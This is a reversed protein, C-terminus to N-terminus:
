YNFKERLAKKESQIKKERLRKEKASKPIKTPIREAPITLASGVLDNLIELARQKNQAQSRESQASVILEGGENVRNKLKEAILQKQEPTLVASQEINWRVTVKTEVKNVNQGGPGSSRSFSFEIESEPIAIDSEAKTEKPM